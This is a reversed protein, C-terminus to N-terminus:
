TREANDKETLITHGKIIGECVMQVMPNFQGMDGKALATYYKHRDAMQILAPPYGKSLLQTMIILRGVRGNGDFFPHITEFEYHDSAIKKVPDRGYSNVRGIFERMKVPVMQASPLKVDTNTLNVYGTRYKGPLKDSFNYMVISHLKLVYEEDIRFGPKIIEILYKLANDHNVAEFVEFMEKGKVPKGSIAKETERLTMRSGEIANSNYTMELFFRGRVAANKRLAGIPDKISDKLREVLPMLDIHDKFLEDIHRSHAPHPKIGKDIWRYVTKYGVELARAIESRSLGTEKILRQLKEGDSIIEKRM